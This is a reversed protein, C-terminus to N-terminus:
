INVENSHKIKYNYLHRYEQNNLEELIELNYNFILEKTSGIKNTIIKSLAEMDPHNHKTGDTSILFKTSEILTMLRSSINKNSGHHSVKVMDFFLKYNDNKLKSLNEYIIDEHSDGLFLIKKDKYEIIFSISSGNTVSSDREEVKSLIEFNCKNKSSINSTSYNNDQEYKMYFELADDFIEEDSIEFAYKKSKLEKLWKNSLKSLKNKNPSLIIINIESQPLSKVTLCDETLIANNQFLTNWSYNYKYLLSALSSGQKCSINQVGNVAVTSTNQLIISNLLSLSNKDIYKVKEKDFQLHKYSNHWVENVKIIKNDQNDTIFELAGGIHDEDIHTIILLDLIENKDKIKLIDNKIEDNYTEPLGMDIMINQGNDFSLLFADGNKAKFSKVKISSM